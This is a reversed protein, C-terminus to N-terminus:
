TTIQKSFGSVNVIDYLPCSIQFFSFFIFTKKLVRVVQRPNEYTVASCVFILTHAHITPKWWGRKVGRKPAPLPFNRDFERYDGFCFFFTRVSRHECRATTINVKHNFSNKNRKCNSKNNNVTRYSRNVKDSTLPLM